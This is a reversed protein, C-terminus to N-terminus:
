LISGDSNLFSSPEDSFVRAASGSNFSEVTETPPLSSERRGPFRDSYFKSLQTSDAARSDGNGLEPDFKANKMAFMLHSVNIQREDFGCECYALYYDWMRVFKDDYGLDKVAEINQWFKERWRRLTEAYHPAFDNLHILRFESSKAAVEVLRSVCPLSGGPFIYKCIFDVSRLHQQYRQDVITIAQLLLLGNDNLLEKCKRFFAPYYRDGVAEIMEVSVIKDFKGDLKRYDQDLLQVQDQLGEVEIRKKVWQYQEQSITTTTVHCGFHKAAYCALSGWGSGIELLRDGPQLALTQCIKEMKNLQARHLSERAGRTEIKKFLASSYNMTPDLFLSFMRNGLDYHAEINKRSIKPTNRRLLHGIREFVRRGQGWSADMRDALDLNQIMLRILGPLDDCTWDGDMWAEAAALNGGSLVRRYFRPNHVLIELGSTEQRSDRGLVHRGDADVVALKGPGIAKFKAILIRRFFRDWRNAPSLSVREVKSM